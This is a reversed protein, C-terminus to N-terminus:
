QAGTMFALRHPFSLLFNQCFPLPVFFCLRYYLMRVRIQLIPESEFNDGYLAVIAADNYNSFTTRIKSRGKGPYSFFNASHDPMAKPSKEVKKPSEFKATAYIPVENNSNADDDDVSSTTSTTM